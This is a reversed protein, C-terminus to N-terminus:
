TVPEKRQLCLFTYPWPNREDATHPEESVIQWDNTQWAPFYTYGVFRHAIRTLYLRKALPLSQQYLHAGGIIMCEEADDALALADQLHHAIHVGDAAHFHPDRPLVINKRGPLPRGIACFTKRGMVIPKGMTLTKFHRLDAPLHWPQGPTCGPRHESCGILRNEDMSAILAIRM